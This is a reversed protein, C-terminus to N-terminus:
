GALPLIRVVSRRPSVDVEIRHGRLLNMGIKPPDDSLSECFQVTRSRGQWTVEAQGCNVKARGFSSEMCLTGSPNLGLKHVMTPSLGLDGNDGTDVFAKLLQWEGHWNRIKIDVWALRPRQLVDYWNLADMPQLPSSKTFRGMLRRYWPIPRIPGVSVEGGKTVDFMIQRNVFLELGIQGSFKHHELQAARVECVQGLCTIRMPYQLSLGAGGSGYLMGISEAMAPISGQWLDLEDVLGKKIGMEGEHGTDILLDIEEFSGDQKLVPFRGVPVNYPGFQGIIIESM